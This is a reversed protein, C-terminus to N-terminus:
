NDLSYRYWLEVSEVGSLGDVAVASVAFSERKTIDLEKWYADGEIPLVSSTPPTTDVGCRADAQEPAQERNGAADVAISYFEYYGDGSPATFSWLWGDSNDSDTGFLAWNEWTSNDASYRYWLEVSKVSGSATATITFPVQNRWYPEIPAVRSSIEGLAYNYIRVEDIVGNFYSIGGPPYDKQYNHRGIEL